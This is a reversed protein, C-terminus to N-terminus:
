PSTRRRPPFELSNALVEFAPQMEAFEGIEMRAVLMNEENLVFLCSKRHDHSLRDWTEVRMGPRGDIVVPHQEAIERHVGTDLSSFVREVLTPLDPTQLREVAKVVVDYAAEVDYWPTKRRLGGDRAVYWSDSIAEWQRTGPFASRLQLNGLHAKADEAQNNRFLERAHDIERLYGERTVPGIDAMSIHLLGRHFRHELGHDLHQWGEPVRLAIDHVGITLRVPPPEEQVTACAL